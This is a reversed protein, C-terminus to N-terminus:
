FEFGAEEAEFGPLSPITADFAIRDACTSDSKKFVQARGIGPTSMVAVLRGGENLQDILQSPVQEIAGNLFIVDYPGEAALGNELPGTVVAVNDVGLESLNETADTALAEDSEVAVVSEALQALVASSYGSGCGVDLLLDGPQIEALQALRAFVTPSMLYRGPAIEVDEGMYSLSRKSSPLFAERPTEAMANIVRRDTVSSPRIQSEVMNHRAVAFESM